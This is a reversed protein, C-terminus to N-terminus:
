VIWWNTGDSVVTIYAFQANLIVGGFGEINGGLSQVTVNNVGGNLRKVTFRRGKRGAASPLNITFAGPFADCLAVEDSDTLTYPGSKYIVPDYSAMLVSNGNSFKAYLSQDASDRYVVSNDGTPTGPATIPRIAINSKFEVPGYLTGGLSHLHWPDYPATAHYAMVRQLRFVQPLPSPLTLTVRVKTLNFSPDPSLIAPSVWAGFGAPPTVAQDYVNVYASTASNWFEIKINTPNPNGGVISSRFTLGIAYRGDGKPTIPNLGCDVTVQVSGVTSGQNYQIVSSDDVFLNSAAGSNSAPSVTVSGLKRDILAFEDQYDLSWGNELNATRPVWANVLTAKQNAVTADFGASLGVAAFRGAVNVQEGSESPILDLSSATRRYLSKWVAAGTAASTCAWMVQTSTNLWHDGAAYGQTNDNGAGPNSAFEVPARDALIKFNETLAIGGDGTAGEVVDLGKYDTLTAM